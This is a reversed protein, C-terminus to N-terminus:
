FLQKLRPLCLMCDVYFPPSATHMHTHAHAPQIRVSWSELCYFRIVTFWCSCLTQLSSWLLRWALHWSTLTVSPPLSSLFPLTPNHGWIRRLSYICLCPRPFFHQPSLCIAEPSSLKSIVSFDWSSLFLLITPPPFPLLPFISPKEFFSFIKTRPTKVVFLSQWVEAVSGPEESREVERGGGDMEWLNDTSNGPAGPSLTHFLSYSLDM